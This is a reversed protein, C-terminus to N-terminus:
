QLRLAVKEARVSVLAHIPGANEMGLPDLGVLFRFCFFGLGFGGRRMM